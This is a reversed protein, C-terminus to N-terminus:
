NASFFKPLGRMQRHIYSRAKSFKLCPMTSLYAVIMGPQLVAIMCLLHHKSQSHLCKWANLSALLRIKGPNLYRSDMKAMNAQFYEPPFWRPSCSLYRTEMIQMQGIRLLLDLCVMLMMYTFRLHIVFRQFYPLVISKFREPEAESLYSCFALFWTALPDKTLSDMSISIFPIVADMPTYQFIISVSHILSNWIEFEDEQKAVFAPRKSVVKLINSMSKLLGPWDNVRTGKRVGAVIGIMRASFLLARFDYENHSVTFSEVSSNTLEIIIELLERFTDSSSHHIMSTLVGCIVNMWASPEKSSLDKEDLALVLARFISPGTTHVNLGNGKMAEAFLTMLGHYYLGFEKAESMSLLDAKAHNIILPLAKERQGPTGAKKILFSMAEAAFRAIHPRQRHKGLLPAILDYTPRLDPVVLKSLYKLLFALSTFSWEIVEVDQPTGAISTVLELAKPYHKEFRPGLDHAFDTMLGLLPEVSEREKKGLCTVFIEMIKDEFHLIQPLSDCMPLVDRSFSIFGESMNLEQWKELGTKFYSTSTSLDEADIDHHRVRRIPDLSNLKSIKTTFSEWRHNKQHPTGNKAKRTKIIRGSTNVPM